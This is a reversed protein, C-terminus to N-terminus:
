GFISVPRCASSRRRSASSPRRFTTSFSRADSSDVEDAGFRRRWLGDSLCPSALLRSTTKARGSGVAANRGCALSTSSTRRSARKISVSRKAAARSRRDHEPLVRCHGSFAKTQARWDLFDPPSAATPSGGIVSTSRSSDIPNPTRCSRLLVGRVVSFIATNAGVGLALTLVSSPSSAVAAASYAYSCLSRGAAAGRALARRARRSGRGSVARRRRVSSSGSAHTRPSGGFRALEEAEMELHFRMEDDMEREIASRDVVLRAPPPTPFALAHSEERADNPPACARSERRTFLRALEGNRLRAAAARRATLRYFKAKRGEPSVGWEADIWGRDELRYLAPYLSGQGIQLVESSLQRIRKSIGWGHLPGLALTKLILLDLTGQLLEAKSDM